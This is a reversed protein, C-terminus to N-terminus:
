KKGRTQLWHPTGHSTTNNVIVGLILECDRDVVRHVVCIKFGRDNRVIGVVRILICLLDLLGDELGEALEGDLMKALEQTDADGQRQELFYTEALDCDLHCIQCKKDLDGL